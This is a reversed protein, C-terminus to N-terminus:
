RTQRRRRAAAFGILGAGLLALTTPEPVNVEFDGSLTTPGAGTKLTLIETVSIGLVLGFFSFVFEFATM